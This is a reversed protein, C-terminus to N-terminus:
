QDISVEEFRPSSRQTRESDGESSNANSPQVVADEDCERSFDIRLGQSTRRLEVKASNEPSQETADTPKELHLRLNQIRAGSRKLKKLYRLGSVLALSLLLSVLEWDEGRLM